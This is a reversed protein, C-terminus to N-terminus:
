KKIAGFVTQLLQTSRAAPNDRIKKEEEAIMKFLGDLAKHTVYDDLDIANNGLYETGKNLLTGFTGSSQGFVGLGGSGGQAKAILSKYSEMVRNSQTAKKVVPLFKGYLNTETTRRFFETAANTSGTLVNKADSISMQKLVDSFVDLAAPVAQEAARNMTLVLDDALKEQKISRLAKEASQLKDPMPIRVNVNNLFGNTQGLSSVAQQVGKGLAEKLGQVMQEQSLPVSLSSAPQNTGTKKVGLQDLLDFGSVSQVAFIMTAAAFSLIGFKMRKFGLAPVLGIAIIFLNDNLSAKLSLKPMTALLTLALRSIQRVILRTKLSEPQRSDHIGFFFNLRETFTPFCGARFDAFHNHAVVGNHLACENGDETTSVDEKFPDGPEALRKKDARKSFDQVHAEAPNLERGVEHGSVDEAGVEHHFRGVSLATKLKLSAGDESVENQCVFDVTSRGLCLGRHQFGHLFFLDRSATLDAFQTFREKNKRRLVRDILFPRIRQGLCLKITEKELEQYVIRSRGVQVFDERSCRFPRPGRDVADQGFFL